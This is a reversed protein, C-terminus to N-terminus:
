PAGRGKEDEWDRWDVDSRALYEKVAVGMTPFFFERGIRPTLGYSRLRDKVPDKMEAFALEIGLAALEEDLEEIM